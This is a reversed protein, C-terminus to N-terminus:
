QKGGEQSAPAAKACRKCLPLDVIVPQKSFGRRWFDTRAQDIVVGGLNNVRCLSQGHRGPVKPITKLDDPRSLHRTRYTETTTPVLEM